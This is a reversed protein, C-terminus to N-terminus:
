SLLFSIPDDNRLTPFIRIASADLVETQADYALSVLLPVARKKCRVVCRHIEQLAAVAMEGKWWVIASSPCTPFITTIQCGNPM